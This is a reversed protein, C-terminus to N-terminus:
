IEGFKKLFIGKRNVATLSKPKRNPETKSFEFNETETRNPKQSKRDTLRYKRNVSGARTLISCIFLISFNSLISFLAINFITFHHLHHFSFFLISKYFRSRHKERKLIRIVKASLYFSKFIIVIVKVSAGM